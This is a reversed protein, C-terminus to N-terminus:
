AQEKRAALMGDAIQYAALGIDMVSLRGGCGIHPVAILAQGAFWDRLTMGAVSGIYDISTDTKNIHKTEPFAPGGDGAVGKWEIYEAVIDGDGEYPLFCCGEEDYLERHRSDFFCLTQHTNAQLPATVKGDCRM